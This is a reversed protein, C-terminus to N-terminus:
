RKTDHYHRTLYGGLFGFGAFLVIGLVSSMLIATYLQETLGNVRYIDIMRGIGPEGQRFFFDAVIAGIVALGASTQYGTFMAPLASYLSLKLLVSLQSAGEMAFLDHLNPDVSRLGLYTTTVVPFICILVTVFVRSKFDYNFWLGVLPVIAIIPITQLAVMYPYLSNRIWRARSMAYALISGVVIAIFLGLVAVQTTAWTAELIESRNDDDMLGFSIVREPPPFLFSRQESILVESVLYWLGIFAALVALPGIIQSRSNRM